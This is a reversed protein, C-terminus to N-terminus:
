DKGTEPRTTQAGKMTQQISAVVSALEAVTRALDSESVKKAASAESVDLGSRQLVTEAFATERIGNIVRQHSMADDALMSMIRALAITPSSAVVKVEENIVASLVGPDVEAM